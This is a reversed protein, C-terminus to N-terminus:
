LIDLTEFYETGDDLLSLSRYWESTDSITIIM